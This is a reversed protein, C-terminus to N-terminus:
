FLTRLFAPGGEEANMGKEVFAINHHFSIGSINRDLYSREGRPDGVEARNLGDVFSKLMGTSTGTGGLPHGGWSPWYATQLDEVVYLGGPRVHPFLAHFSTRVHDNLHSGDDIVVDFPGRERGLRDLFAADSQDGQVTAIRPGTVNKQAIDLGLVLGRPFYRQWMRLSGGGRDPDRYGGIGIELVRVAETRLRAFHREYHQTYWHLDGWKDSGFEVALEGLDPKAPRLASLLEQVSRAIGKRDSFWGSPGREDLERDPTTVALSPWPREDTGYLGRVADALDLAVVVESGTALHSTTTGDFTLDLRVDHEGVEALVRATVARPTLWRITEGLLDRGATAAQLLPALVAWSDSM